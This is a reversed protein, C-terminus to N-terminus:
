LIDLQFNCNTAAVLYVNDDLRVVRCNSKASVKKTSRIIYYMTDSFKNCYGKLTNGSQQYYDESQLYDDMVNGAQSVTMTRLWGYESKTNDLMECYIKYMQEWNINQSREHDLVDDPHVFHSFIGISSVTSYIDWKTEDNNDYGSTVRPMELIGDSSKCVKQVYQDGSIDDNYTSSIMKLDSDAKILASRGEKSLINSPPVYFRFSYKPYTAKAYSVLQKISAEM